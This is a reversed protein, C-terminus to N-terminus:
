YAVGLVLWHFSRGGGGCWFVFCQSHYSASPAVAAVRRPSAKRVRKVKPTALEAQASAAPSPATAATANVADDKASATVPLSLAAAWVSAALIVPGLPRRM